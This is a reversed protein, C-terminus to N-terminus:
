GATLQADRLSYERASGRTARLHAMLEVLMLRACDILTTPVDLRILFRANKATSMVRCSWGQTSYTIREKKICNDTSSSTFNESSWESDLFLLLVFTRSYKIAEIRVTM